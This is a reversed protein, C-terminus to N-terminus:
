TVTSVPYKVIERLIGGDGGGIILVKKPNHHSLMTVHAATEHYIFEDSQSFQVIGDLALIRGFKKNEFVMIDQLKSKCHYVLRDIKYLDRKSSGNKSYVTKLLWENSNLTIVNSMTVSLKKFKLRKQNLFQELTISPKRRSQKKAVPSFM